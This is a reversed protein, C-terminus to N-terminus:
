SFRIKSKRIRKKKNNIENKKFSIENELKLLKKSNQIINKKNTENEEVLDNHIKPTVCSFMFLISLVTFLTLFRM